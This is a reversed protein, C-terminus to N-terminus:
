SCLRQIAFNLIVLNQTMDLRMKISNYVTAAEFIKARLERNEISVESALTSVASQSGVKGTLARTADLLDVKMDGARKDTADMARKIADTNAELARTNADSSWRRPARPTAWHWPPPM